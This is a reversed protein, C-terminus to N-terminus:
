KRQEDFRAWVEEPSRMGTTDPVCHKIFLAFAVAVLTFVWFAGGKGFWKVLLPFGYAIVFTNVWNSALAYSQAAGVARFEVIESPLSWPVPGLGFSFSIVFFLTAIGTLNPIDRMIGLGVCFASTGMGITSALLANKRGLRQVVPGSIFIVSCNIISLFVTVLAAARPMIDRLVAVGYMFIGNIGTLQQAAMIGVVAILSRRYQPDTGFEWMSVGKSHIAGTSVLLPSTEATDVDCGHLRCETDMAEKNYGQSELWKPSEEAFLLQVFQLITIVTCIGFIYRWAYPQSLFLGLTQTLLIGLNVGAQTTIGSGFTLKRNM